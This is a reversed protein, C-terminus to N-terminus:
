ISTNTGGSTITGSYTGASSGGTVIVEVTDGLRAIKNGGIGLDTKDADIIVNTANNITVNGGNTEIEFNGDSDQKIYTGTVSNYVICEGTKLNKIRSAPPADFIGTINEEQSGVNFLVGLSGIPCSSSFGYDHLIHVNKVKENYSVQGKQYNGSDVVKLTILARKILNRIGM